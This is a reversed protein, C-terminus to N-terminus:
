PPTHSPLFPCRQQALQWCCRCQLPLCALYRGLLRKGGAAESRVAWPQPQQPPQPLRSAAALVPLCGPWNQCQRRLRQPQQGLPPSGRLLPRRHCLGAALEWWPQWAQLPLIQLCPPAYTRRKRAAAAQVADVGGGSECIRGWSSTPGPQKVAQRCASGASGRGRRCAAATCSGACESRRRGAAPPLATCAAPPPPPATRRQRQAPRECACPRRGRLIWM